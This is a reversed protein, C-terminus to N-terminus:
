QSNKEKSRLHWLLIGYTVWILDRPFKMHKNKVHINKQRLGLTVFILWRRVCELPIRIELYSAVDQASDCANIIVMLVVRVHYKFHVWTLCTLSTAAHMAIMNIFSIPISSDTLFQQTFSFHIVFSVSVSNCYNLIIDNYAMQRSLNWTNTQKEKASTATYNHRIDPVLLYEASREWPPSSIGQVKNNSAFAFSIFFSLRKSLM